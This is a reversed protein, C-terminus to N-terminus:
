AGDDSALASQSHFENGIRGSAGAWFSFSLLCGWCSSVLSPLGLLPSALSPSFFFASAFLSEVLTNKHKRHKHFSLSTIPLGEEFTMM